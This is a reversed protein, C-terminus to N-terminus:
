KSAGYKAARRTLPHVYTPDLEYSTIKQGETGHIRIVGARAAQRLLNRATAATIPEDNPWWVQTMRRVLTVTDCPIGDRLFRWAAAWAPGVREGKNPYAGRINPPPLKGAVTTM